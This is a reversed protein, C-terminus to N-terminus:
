NKNHAFYSSGGIFNNMLKRSRQEIWPQFVNKAMEWREKWRGRREVMKGMEKKTGVLRGRERQRERGTEGGKKDRDRKRQRM